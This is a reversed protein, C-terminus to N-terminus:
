RLSMAEEVGKWFLLNVAGILEGADSLCGKQFRYAAM